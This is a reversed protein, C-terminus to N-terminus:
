GAAAVPALHGELPSSLFQTTSGRLVVQTTELQLYLGCIHGFDLNSLTAITSGRHPIVALLEPELVDALTFGGGSVHACVTEPLSVEDIYLSTTGALELYFWGQQFAELLLSRRSPDLCLTWAGTGYRKRLIRPKNATQKKMPASVFKTRLRCLESRRFHQQELFHLAAESVRDANLVELLSRDFPFEKGLGAAILGRSYWWRILFDARAKEDAFPVAQTMM